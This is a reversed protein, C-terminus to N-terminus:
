VVTWKPHQFLEHVHLHLVGGGPTKCGDRTSGDSCNCLPMKYHNESWFLIFQGKPGRNANPEHAFPNRVVLFYIFITLKKCSIHNKNSVDVRQFPKTLSDTKAGAVQSNLIWSRIGCFNRMEALYMNHYTNDKGM